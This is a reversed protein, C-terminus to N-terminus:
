NSKKKYLISFLTRIWNLQWAATLLSKKFWCNVTKPHTFHAMTDVASRVKESTGNQKAVTFAWQVLCFCQPHGSFLPRDAQLHVRTQNLLLTCASLSWPKNKCTQSTLLKSQPPFFPSLVFIFYTLANLDLHKLNFESVQQIKQNYKKLEQETNM